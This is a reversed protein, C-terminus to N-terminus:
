VLNFFKFEVSVTSNDVMGKFMPSFNGSFKNQITINVELAYFYM